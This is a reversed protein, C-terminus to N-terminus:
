ASPTGGPHHEALGSRGNESAETVIRLYEARQRAWDWPGYARCLRAALNAREGPGMGAFRHLANTLDDLNGPQFYIASDDGFYQRYSPLGAAVVPMGLCAMELLKNSLSLDLMPGPRTPVIGGGRRRLEAALKAHPVRGHFRVADTVDLEAALRELVHVTEGAGFLHLEIPWRSRIRAVARIALDLGYYPLLSGHYVLALPHAPEAGQLYPGSGQAFLQDDASNMVVGLRAPDAGREVFRTKLPENVTIASDAYRISAQELRALLRVAWHTRPARYKQMYFEPAIEHLDLLLSAGRWRAPTAALVLFDPLTHVQVVAYRPARLMAWSSWLIFAAYEAAYRLRSGRRRGFPARVVRIGDVVQTRAQGNSRAAYVDVSWGADRLAMAERRVRVDEPYSSLVLM